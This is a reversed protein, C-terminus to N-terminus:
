GEKLCKFSKCNECDYYCKYDKNYYAYKYSIPKRITKYSSNSYYIGKDEIFDGLLITKWYTMIAFKSNTAEYILKIIANNNYQKVPITSLYDKIFIQTDSLANKRKDYCFSIVGNHAVGVDSEINLERLDIKKNTVPFPHCNEPCIKGQTAYRFHMVLDLETLNYEKEIKDLANYMEECFMFGKITKIRGNKQRFMLGAGDPNDDFCNELITDNPLEIGKPKYMIICM